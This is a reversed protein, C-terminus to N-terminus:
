KLNKSLYQNRAALMRAEFQEYTGKDVSGITLWEVVSQHVLAPTIQQGLGDSLKRVQLNMRMQADEAPSEAGVLIEIDLTKEHMVAQNFEDVPNQWQNQVEFLGKAPSPVKIAQWQEALTEASLNDFRAAKVWKIIAQWHADASARKASNAVANFAECAAKFRKNLAPYHEKPLTGLQEYESKLNEFVSQDAEPTESHILGELSTLVAEAQERNTELEAKFQVSQEDRKAFLADCVERFEKWLKQEDKRSVVGAKKWEQQLKKAEGTAKKVDDLDLLSKAKDIIAQKQEKFVSQEKVLQNFLGQHLTDFQKQVNKSAARDVPSYHRWDNRAAQLVRDIEKLDPSSWDIMASYKSLQEVVEKRKELNVERLHRQEAYYEKCPEYAQQALEHFSEWLDQQRNQLGRSLLKWEEQMDRISKAREEPPVSQQVLAGMKKILAEKKPLVAYSQWDRLKELAETTEDLLKKLGAHHSFDFGAIKEEVGQYLGSARRISGEEIASQCRRIQGRIARVQDIEQQRHKALTAEHDKLAQKITALMAPTKDGLVPEIDQVWHELESMLGKNSEEKVAAMLGEYGNHEALLSQLKALGVEYATCAKHFAQNETKTPTSVQETERWQHQLGTLFHQSQTVAQETYDGDEICGALDELLTNLIAQRQESQEGEEVEPLSEDSQLQDNKPEFEAHTPEETTHQEPETKAKEEELRAQVAKNATEYQSQVQESCLTGCQGWQDVLGRHKAEYMPDFSAKALQELAAIVAQQKDLLAQEAKAAQQLAELKNKVIRHVTKDKAKVRQMVSVLVSEENINLAAVQRVSANFGECAIEQLTDSALTQPEVKTFHLQLMLLENEPLSNSLTNLLNEDNEILKALQMMLSHKRKGEAAKIDDALQEPSTLVVTAAPKVVPSTAVQKASTKKRGFLKQFM